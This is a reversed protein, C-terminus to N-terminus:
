EKVAKRVDKIRAEYHTGNFRAKQPHKLLAYSPVPIEEGRFFFIICDSKIDPVGVAVGKDYLSKFSM